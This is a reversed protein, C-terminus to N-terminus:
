PYDTYTSTKALQQNKFHIKVTALAKRMFFTTICFYPGRNRVKFDNKKFMSDAHAQKEAKVIVM